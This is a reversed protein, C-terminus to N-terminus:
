AEGQRLERADARLRIADAAMAVSDALAREEAVTFPEARGADADFYRLVYRGLHHNVTSLEHMLRGDDHAVPDPPPIQSM